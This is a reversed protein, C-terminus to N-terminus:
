ITILVHAILITNMVRCLQAWRGVDEPTFCVRIFHAIEAIMHSFGYISMQRSEQSILIITITFLTM